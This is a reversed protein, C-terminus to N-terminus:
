NKSTQIKMLQVDYIQLQSMLEMYKSMFLIDFFVVWKKYHLCEQVTKCNYHEPPGDAGRAPGDMPARIAHM